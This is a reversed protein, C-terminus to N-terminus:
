VIERPIMQVLGRKSLELGLFAGDIAINSKTKKGDNLNNNKKFPAHKVHFRPNFASQCRYIASVRWWLDLDEIM